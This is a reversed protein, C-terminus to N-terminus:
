LLVNDNETKFQNIWKPDVYYDLYLGNEYLIEKIENLCKRGFNKLQLLELETMQVLQWIYAINNNHLTNHSRVSLEMEEIRQFLYDCKNKELRKNLLIFAEISLSIQIYQKKLPNQTYYNKINCLQEIHVWILVTMTM